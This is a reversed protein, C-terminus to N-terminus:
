GGQETANKPRDICWRMAVAGWTMGAGFSVLVVLDGKELLGQEQADVLALPISAASTNGYESINVVTKEMPFGLRRCLSKIIRLNAQHPILCDVEDITHGSKRLTETVAESMNGVAMQFVERGQMKITHMNSELSERSAPTRSGGGPLKLFDAASGDAGLQFSLVGAGLAAPGVVAAGAGDGFLVCTNRDNWDTVKSLIEVGVVLANKYPGAAILHSAVVLGYLFGSCAAGIDFCAANRAGIMDQVLCATSPAPMDPTATAIILLDLELPDVRARALARRSAEAALDSSAIDETAIHRKSIGTRDLIWEDSTDVMRELDQNTLCNEPVARGVAVIGVPLGAAPADGQNERAGDVTIEATDIVDDM